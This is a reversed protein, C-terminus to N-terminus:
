QLGTFSDSYGHRSGKKLRFVSPLKLVCIHSVTIYYYSVQSVQTADLIKRRHARHTLFYVTCCERPCPASVKAPQM